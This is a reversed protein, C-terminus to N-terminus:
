NIQKPNTIKGFLHYKSTKTIKVTLKDGLSVKQNIVVSKYENTKGIYLGNKGIKTILIDKIKNIDKKNKNEITNEFIITLERSRKKKVDGKLDTYKNAEINKRIGYRSINVFNPKIKKIFKLTNKFQADTETPYGVIIDTAITLEPIEKKFESIIKYVDEIKYFRNMDKLVQNDGSQIPIHLFKYIRPDKYIEILEPLINILHQPNGMGIKLKFDNKIKLIEKLLTILSENIDLGYCANDQSTLIIEKVQKEILEKKIEEVIKNVPKSKLKGRAFKVACYYCNGLCGNSLVIIQTFNIKKSKLKGKGILKKINNKEAVKFYNANPLVSTMASKDIDVLCGFIIIKDQKINTLKIKKLYNIIKTQTQEKVGCTNILIYDSKQLDSTTENLNIVEETDKKNLTCGFTKVFFKSM